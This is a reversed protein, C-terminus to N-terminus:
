HRGFFRPNQVIKYLWIAFDSRTVQDSGPVTAKTNILRHRSLAVLDLPSIPATPHFLGDLGLSFVGEGLCRVIAQRTQMEGDSDDTATLLDVPVVENGGSHTLRLLRAIAYACESRTLSQDPRFNLNEDCLPMLGTLALYQAAVFAKDEVPLDNFWVVPAGNCILNNQVSRLLRRNLLVRWPARNRRLCEAALTGAAEGIAWEIPHLRYAGNTIHTTSINKGAPLFNTLKNQILASAPIQFPRTPQAAGSVDQAGHIDVPYHGIGLSDEFNRARAKVNSACVIDNEVITYKAQLRRSERIYPYKSLGDGTGAIDPRLKLEPYGVGGDDRPAETQLWYLFGLSLYKGLTLRHAVVLARKDILNEGRLDNSDWNIMAIDHPFIQASFNERAILRRYEWFPLLEVESGTSRTVRANEFMKYGNFSFKGAAKFEDYHAPKDVTHDEGACFEVVFPYTFDQVNEPDAAVPAHPEGTQLCSEAGTSYPLGALPLLDGLETADLCFKCRFEVFKGSDLHVALISRVHHRECKVAVAKYRMFLRLKETSVGPSLLEGIKAVAVSPEFGLRSVWCNGPDLWPEFRAGGDTAGLDRYHQRICERLEKYARTAGSSEVLQNEDPASVGQTTMQGGLWSTEEIVCVNSLGAKMAANAAAVGGMGGGVILVACNIIKAKGHLIFTKCASEPSSLNLGEVDVVSFSVGQHVSEKVSDDMTDNIPVMQKM